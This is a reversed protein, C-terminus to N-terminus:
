LGPRPKLGILVPAVKGRDLAYYCLGSLAFTFVTLATLELYWPYNVWRCLLLGGMMVPFHFIFVPYVARNLRTLLPSAHNLRRFAFGFVVGCWIVANLSHLVSYAATLPTHFPWGAALWGGESLLYETEPTRPTLAEYFPFFAAATVIGVALLVWRAAALRSWFAADLTMIWYGAAYFALYWIHQYGLPDDWFAFPKLALEIATLGTALIVGALLPSAGGGKMVRFLPLCILSYILLNILFWLHQAMSRPGRQLWQGYVAWFDTAEGQALVYFWAIPANWILMAIILPLGLRVMRNRAFAGAGTRRLLFWTGVGSIMFLAPLRWSHSFFLAMDLAYGAVQQNRYGYVADGYGVFGIAAHYPVLLGFLLVRLWDLDHRRAM